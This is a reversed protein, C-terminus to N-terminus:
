AVKEVLKKMDNLYSELESLFEKYEDPKEKKWKLFDKLEIIDNLNQNIM